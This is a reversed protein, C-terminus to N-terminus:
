GTGWPDIEKLGAAAFASTDRSAVIFGHAAAIAAIHERLVGRNNGHILKNTM